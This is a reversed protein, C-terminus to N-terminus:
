LNGILSRSYKARNQAFWEKLEAKYVRLRAGFAANEASLTTSISESVSNLSVSRSAIAALKGDGYINMLTVAALKEIIGRFEDPVDQCNEYGTDYDILFISQRDSDYPAFLYNQWIYQYTGARAALQRPRFYVAGVFGLKEIRYPMLDIITNGYYPDVFKATLITRVPRQRLKVRLEQRAAVVRYPYGPERIYLESKQKRTMPALYATDDFDTRVEETGDEGILNKYRRRRPLIDINLEVEMYRIAVRIYDNLQDDTIASSDSVAILPNGFLQNYRLEDATCIMGFGPALYDSTVDPNNFVFGRRVDIGTGSSYATIIFSNIFTIEPAGDDPTLFMKDYYTGPTALVGATYAYLGTGTHLITTITQVANTENVADDFSPYIVVQRVSHADQAIANKLLEFQLDTSQITTSNNRTGNAM